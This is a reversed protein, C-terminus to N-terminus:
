FNENLSSQVLFGYIEATSKCVASLGHSLSFMGDFDLIAFSVTTDLRFESYVGFLLKQNQDVFHIFLSRERRM